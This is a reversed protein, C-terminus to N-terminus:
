NFTLTKIKCIFNMNRISSTLDDNFLIFKTKHDIGFHERYEKKDDILMDIDHNKCIEAKAAWWISPECYWGSNKYFGSIQKDDRLFEIVSLLKTYSYINLKDLELKINKKESGSIVYVNHGQEIYDKMIINFMDPFKDITKHLDFGINM